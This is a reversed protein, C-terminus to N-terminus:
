PYETLKDIPPTPEFYEYDPEPEEEKDPDYEYDPWIYGGNQLDWDMGKPILWCEMNWSLKFVDGKADTIRAKRCINGWADWYGETEPAKQITEWDADSIGTVAERKIKQTFQQPLYERATYDILLTM